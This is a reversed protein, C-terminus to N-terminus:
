YNTMKILDSSLLSTCREAAAALRHAVTTMPTCLTSPV